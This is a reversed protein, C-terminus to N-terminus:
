ASKEKQENKRYISAIGELSLYPDVAEISQTKKAIKKALGGTAIVVTQTGLEQKIKDVLGDLMVITGFMIGSQISEDTTRGILNLPFNMSVKPLKAARLHLADISTAIGPAIIGGLYDGQEDLCDFTTATGFDIIILPAGYREKGAVANCLRDAGVAKPDKYKIKLGLEVWSGIIFPEIQLYRKCMIRYLPTLEPVVSSIAAGRLAGKVIGHEQLLFNLVVFIEDETRALDSTIRWHELLKNEEFIGIVTHTNGIDIAMLM